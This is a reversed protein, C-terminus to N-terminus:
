WDITETHSKYFKVHYKSGLERVGLSVLFFVIYKFYERILVLLIGHPDLFLLRM